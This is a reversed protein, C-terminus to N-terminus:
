KIKTGKEEFEKVAFEEEDRKTKDDWGEKIAVPKPKDDPTRTELLKPRQIPEKEEYWEPYVKDHLRWISGERAIHNEFVIYEITEKPETPSGLLLRGFRDYLAYKQLSHIRVMIQAIDNGSKYPYDACRASLAKSPSKFGCHEWVLSGREVDTWMKEYATETILGLLRDKNREALATYANIYIQEAESCFNELKFNKFGEKKKIKRTGSFYSHWRHKVRQKIESGKAKLQGSFDTFGPLIPLKKEPSVYPDLVGYLSQMTLQKEAWERGSVDKATNFGKRMLAVRVDFPSMGELEQEKRYDPLDVHIYKRGRAARWKKENMHTNRNSKHKCSRIIGLYLKKNDSEMHHHVNRISLAGLSVICQSLFQNNGSRRIAQSLM